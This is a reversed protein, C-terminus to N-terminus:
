RPLRVTFRAGGEAAHGAEVSGGLRATLGSVIALGLGTGVQRVGQYRRYLESRQFAVTLDDNSLGPGGDRIEAVMAAPEARVALVIPAGAPTVRLANELLGDLVQRLRAPDTRVWLPEGTAEVSFPVSVQECRHRWVQAAAQALATLDVDSFEVRFDAADLRALDLLDTVLRTLRHAEAMIVAAAAPTQEAPVVGNAISEAYGNIATLPTRLDHSVSLLFERQRAESHALASTLSNIAEAVAAVEQPGEPPVVVDRRGSALSHAAAAARRLPRAMRRAILAGVAAAVVVGVLIALLTRRLAANSAADADGHRQVLVVAGGGAAPRGELYVDTGQVTESTSVSKGARLQQLQNPALAASVLPYRTRLDGAVEIYGYRVALTDLTRAVRARAQTSDTEKAAADALRSLEQRAGSEAASRILGVALAGALAGTILAICVGLVTIRTALSTRTRSM